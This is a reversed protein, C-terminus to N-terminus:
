RCPFASAVQSDLVLLRRTWGRIQAWISSSGTKTSSLMTSALRVRADSRPTSQILGLQATMVDAVFEFRTKCALEFGSEAERQVDDLPDGAGLLTTILNNGCYGSFTLDGTQNATDFALRLSARGSRIHRTWPVIFAGFCAYVRAKFRDMGHKEVLDVGLKGFRLGARYDGFQPGLTMGLMVYAFGSGDSNGHELSLNAMRGAILCYLNMDTAHAPPQVATLVDLTARCVPDTMLPLDLLQEISRNGMQQWM